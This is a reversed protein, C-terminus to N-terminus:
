LGSMSGGTGFDVGGASGGGCVTLKTLLGINRDGDGNRRRLPGCADVADDDAAAAARPKAALKASAKTADIADDDTGVAAIVVSSLTSVPMSSM